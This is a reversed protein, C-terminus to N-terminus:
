RKSKAQAPQAKMASPRGPQTAPKAAFVQLLVKARQGAVTQLKPDLALVKALDERGAAEGRRIRLEGRNVLAFAHNSREIAATYCSEARDKMGLKEYVTGLAFQMASDKPNLEVLLELMERGGELDGSEAKDCAVQAIARADEFRLGIMEAMTQETNM